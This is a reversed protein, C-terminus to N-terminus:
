LGFIIFLWRLLFLTKNSLALNDMTFPALVADTKMESTCCFHVRYLESTCYETGKSPQEYSNSKHFKFTLAVNFYRIKIETCMIHPHFWSIQNAANLKKINGLIFLM